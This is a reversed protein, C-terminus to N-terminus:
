RPKEYHHASLEDALKELDHFVGALWILEDFDDSDLALQRRAEGMNNNIAAQLAAVANPKQRIM